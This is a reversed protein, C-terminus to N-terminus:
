LSTRQYLHLCVSSIHTLAATLSSISQIPHHPKSHTKTKSFNQKLSASHLINKPPWPNRDEGRSITAIPKLVSTIPDGNPEARPMKCLFLLFLDFEHTMNQCTTHQLSSYSNKFDDSLKNNM